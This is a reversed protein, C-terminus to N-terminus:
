LTEPPDRKPLSGNNKYPNILTEAFKPTGKARRWKM